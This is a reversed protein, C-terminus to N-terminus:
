IKNSVIDFPEYIKLFYNNLDDHHKNWWKIHQIREM